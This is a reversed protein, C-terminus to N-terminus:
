KNETMVHSTVIYTYKRARPKNMGPNDEPSKEWM